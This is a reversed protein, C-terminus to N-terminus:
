VTITKPRPVFRKNLDTRLCQTWIGCQQRSRTHHLLCFIQGHDKDINPQYMYLTQQKNTIQKIQPKAEKAMMYTWMPSMIFIIRDYKQLRGDLSVVSGEQIDAIFIGPKQEINGSLRIGLHKGAQREITVTLMEEDSLNGSRRGGQKQPDIYSPSFFM